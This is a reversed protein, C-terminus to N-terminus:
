ESTTMRLSYERDTNVLGLAATGSSTNEVRVEPANGAVVHLRKSPSSTGIGVNDSFTNLGTFAQDNRDLLAVNPGLQADALTGNTMQSADLETLGAGSGSFAGEFVNAANSITVPSAYTGALQSSSLAGSLQSAVISNPTPTVAQRPTLLAFDTPSTNTRVGIELWRAETFATGFDLAVTFYGNSVVVASNTLPSGVPSGLTAADFLTFRLDYLGNAPGSDTQLQGQYTFATGLPEAQATLGGLLTVLGLRNLYAALFGCPKTKINQKM